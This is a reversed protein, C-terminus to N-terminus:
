ISIDAKVKKLQATINASPQDKKPAIFSSTSPQTPSDVTFTRALQGVPPSPTPEPYGPRSTLATPQYVRGSRTIEACVQTAYDYPVRHTDRTLSVVLPTHTALELPAIPLSAPSSVSQSPYQASPYPGLQPRASLRIPSQAQSTTASPATTRELEATLLIM